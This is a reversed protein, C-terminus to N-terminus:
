EFRLAEIPRMAAARGAPYTGFFLGILVAAGFALGISYPAISPQVGAIKFQSGVVGAIVGALGGFFSVLVAEVLFQILIDSRRAGVAKRIGIERTRETVSVLMINMVGIGGVLLSIAAVEGLLTTFVKSSASSTQLITSQNEVLFNSGTLSDATPPDLQNLIDTVETQAAGLSQRSTAQVVVQNISGYGTLTDQVATLPAIGVDDENSSGNTGKPNTVGIVQYNTGNVQVTDGVPDQGGFLETVVTPGVVLVRSHNTVDANTFWSGSSMTYDRAQQYSPTTGSFSSPSYTSDGYTLTVDGATVVPSVTKVDPAQFRNKLADADALTLSTSITAGPRLGGLTPTATVTLINSGLADIQNEVADSSGTGVAILVIVSGVGIMLGLITLGSRLKNASLGGLAVRITEIV